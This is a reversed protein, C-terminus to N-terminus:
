QNGKRALEALADCRNNDACDAHGRVWHWTIRHFNNMKHIREWLDGNKVGRFGKRAWGKIWSTAGNRLYQSDTYIQVESPSALSELAKLAATIEMRNNTTNTDSGWFEGESGTPFKIHFAWGGPGPNPWCSGDTHIVVKNM